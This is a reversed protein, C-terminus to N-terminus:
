IRGTFFSRRSAQHMASTSRSSGITCVAKALSATSPSRWRLRSRDANTSWIASWGPRALGPFRRTRGFSVPVTHTYQVLNKGLELGQEPVHKPCRRSRQQLCMGRRLLRGLQIRVLQRAQQVLVAAAAEPTGLSLLDLFCVPRRKTHRKRQVGQRGLKLDQQSLIAEEPFLHSVQLLADGGIKLLDGLM